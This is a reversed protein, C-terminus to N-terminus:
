RAAGRGLLRVRLWEVEVGNRDGGVLGSNAELWAFATQLLPLRGAADGAGDPPAPLRDLGRLLALLGRGTAPMAIGLVREQHKGLFALAERAKGAEVGSDMLLEFASSARVQLLEAGPVTEEVARVLCDWRREALDGVPHGLHRRARVQADLVHGVLYAAEPTTPQVPVLWETPLLSLPLYWIPGSRRVVSVGLEAVPASPRRRLEDGVEFVLARLSREVPGLWEALGRRETPIVSVSECWVAFRRSFNLRAAAMAPAPGPVTGGAELASEFRERAIELDGAVARALRVLRAGAPTAELEREVERTFIAGAGVRGAEPGDTGPPEDVGVALPGLAGGPVAKALAREADRLSAQTSGPLEGTRSRALGVEQLQPGSAVRRVLEWPDNRLDSRSALRVMRDLESRLDDAPERPAEGPDPQRAITPAGAGERLGARESLARSRDRWALVGLGTALVLTALIRPLIRGRSDSGEVGARLALNGLRRAPTRPGPPFRARELREELARRGQPREAPDDVLLSEILIREARDPGLRAFKPAPLPSGAGVQALEETGYPFGRELLWYLSAGWAYWDGAPEQRGGRLCEPPLFGLSGIRQGTRSLRDRHTDLVLGLDVLVPIRGRDVVINAPKVDRHVLGARHLASLGEAVELLLPLPDGPAAEELSVGELLRTVLYPRGDEVGSDFITLVNPHRVAALALAERQFRELVPRSPVLDVLKVAVRRRLERDEAEFVTGMAGRGLRRVPAFRRRLGEPYGAHNPDRSTAM